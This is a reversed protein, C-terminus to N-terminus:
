CGSSRLQPMRAMAGLLQRAAEIEAAQTSTVISLLRREDRNVDASAARRENAPTYLVLALWPLLILAVLALLRQRLSFFREQVFNLRPAGPRMPPVTSRGPM